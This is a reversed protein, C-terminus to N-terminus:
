RPEHGECELCFIRANAINILRLRLRERAVPFDEPVKSNITVTNGLRGAHSVDHLNGFDDSIPADAGLRWDALVWVLDRDVVPPDPEEVILAGALGRGVQEFSRAHPHYWFTGADHLDFACTFSGGPAIPPQTLHPVGDMANPLRLGHWHVNTEQELRNVVEVHLREGQRARIEPGPVIGNYSWMATQPYPAGVLHAEGAAAVLRHVAGSAARAPATPLVATAAAAGSVALLRRRSLKL